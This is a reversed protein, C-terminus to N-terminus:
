GRCCSAMQQGEREAVQYGSKQLHWHEANSEEAVTAAGDFVAAARQQDVREQGAIRQRRHARILEAGVRDQHAVRVAVVQAIRNLNGAAAASGNGTRSAGRWRGATPHGM